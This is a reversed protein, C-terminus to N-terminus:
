AQAASCFLCIQSNRPTGPFSPYLKTGHVLWRCPRFNQAAGDDFPQGILCQLIGLGRREAVLQAQAQTADGDLDLLALNAGRARLASALATGLGGTSGTLAVTRGTLDYRPM